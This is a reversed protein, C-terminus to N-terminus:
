GGQCRAVGGCTRAARSLAHRGPSCARRMRLITPPPRSGARKLSGNVFTCLSTNFIKGPARAAARGVIESPETPGGLPAGARGGGCPIAARYGAGGAGACAGRKRGAGRRTQAGLSRGGLGSARRSGAEGREGCRTYASELAGKVEGLTSLPADLPAALACRRRRPGRPSPSREPARPSAWPGRRRSKERWEPARPM